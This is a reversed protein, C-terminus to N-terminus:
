IIYTFSGPAIGSVTGSFNGYNAASFTLQNGGDITVGGMVYVSATAGDIVWQAQIPNPSFTPRYRSPIAATSSWTKSSVTRTANLTGWALTIHKGVRVINVTLAINTAIPGTMNLSISDEEYYSLTAPTGGTTPLVIGASTTILGTDSTTCVTM